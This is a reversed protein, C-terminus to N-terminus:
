FSIEEDKFSVTATKPEPIIPRKWAKSSLFRKGVKGIVTYASLIGSNPYFSLVLIIM